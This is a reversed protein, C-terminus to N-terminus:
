TPIDFSFNIAENIEGRKAEAPISSTRHPTGDRVSARARSSFDRDNRQGISCGVAVVEETRV